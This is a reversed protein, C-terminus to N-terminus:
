APAPVGAAVSFLDKVLERMIVLRHAEETGGAITGCLSDALMPFLEADEQVGYSGCVQMADTVSDMAARAATMKLQSAELTFREGAAVKALARQGLARVTDLRLKIDCLRRQIHQHTAIPAGFVQRSVSFELAHQLAAEIGGAAVFGALIRERQLAANLVARGRGRAIVHSDPIEVDRFALSGVPASHTGVPHLPPSAEVGPWDHEVLVGAIDNCAPDAVWVISMAAVPASTIHWKNGNLILMGGDSTLTSAPRFADTGGVPETIAFALIEEGTRLRALYPERIEPDAEHALVSMGLACHTVPVITFGGDRSGRTLGELAAALNRLSTGPEDFVFELIGAEVMARWMPWGFTRSRYAERMAARHDEGVRRYRERIEEFSDV